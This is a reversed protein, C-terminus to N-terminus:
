GILGLWPFVELLYFGFTELTGTFILMGTMVLLGGAGIELKRMHQRFRRAFAMFPKVAFAALLFPIGLGLSYVSLLSIGFGLSDQTAAITLITALIPGICPTWGFAFALGIFYAGMPGAMREPNFRAERNFFAIRFAGMYHLGFVIILISAITGLVDMYDRLFLSIASASAGLSVFVTSFGLVFAGASGVTRYVLAGDAREEELYDDLTTGALFCLYGPVLPLVCPSLFSILGGGAAAIYSIEYGAM